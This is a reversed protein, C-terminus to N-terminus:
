RCIRDVVAEGPRVHMRTEESNSRCVNSASTTWAELSAVLSVVEGGEDVLLVLAVVVVGLDEVEEVVQVVGAVQQPLVIVLVLVKEMGLTGEDSKTSSGSRSSTTTAISTQRRPRRRRTTCSSGVAEVLLWKRVVEAWVVERAVVDVVGVQDKRKVIALGRYGILAIVVNGIRSVVV